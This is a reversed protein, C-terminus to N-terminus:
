HITTCYDINILLIKIVGETVFFHSIQIIELVYPWNQSFMLASLVLLNWIVLPTVHLWNQFENTCYAFYLSTMKLYLYCAQELRVIDCKGLINAFTTKSHGELAFLWGVKFFWMLHRMGDMQLYTGVLDNSPWMSSNM